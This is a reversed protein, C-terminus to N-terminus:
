YTFPHVPSCHCSWLDRPQACTSASSLSILACHIDNPLMLRQAGSADGADSAGAALLLLSAPFRFSFFVVLSHLQNAFIMSQDLARRRRRRRRRAEQQTYLGAGVERSTGHRSSRIIAATTEAPISCSPHSKAAFQRWHLPNSHRRCRITKNAEKRQRRAGERAGQRAEKAGRRKEKNILYSCM